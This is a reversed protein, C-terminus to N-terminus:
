FSYLTSSNKGKNSQEQGFWTVRGTSLVCLVLMINASLGTQNIDGLLAVGSSKDGPLISQTVDSLPDGEAM